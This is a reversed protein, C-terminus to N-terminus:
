TQSKAIETQSKRMLHKMIAHGILRTIYYSQSLTLEQFSKQVLVGTYFTSNIKTDLDFNTSTYNKYKLMKQYFAWMKSFISLDFQLSNNIQAYLEHLIGPGIWWISMSSRLSAVMFRLSRSAKVSKIVPNHFEKWFSQGVMRWLYSTKICVQLWDSINWHVTYKSIM